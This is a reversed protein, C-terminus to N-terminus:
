EEVFVILRGFGLKEGVGGSVGRRGHLVDNLQGTSIGLEDAFARQSGHTEIMADLLERMDHESLMRKGSVQASLRPAIKPECM